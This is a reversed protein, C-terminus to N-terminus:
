PKETGKLAEPIRQQSGDLSLRFDDATNEHGDRGPAVLTGGGTSDTIFFDNGWADRTEDETLKGASRLKAITPIGDAMAGDSRLHLLKNVVAEMRGRTLDIRERDLQALEDATPPSAVKMRAKSFMAAINQGLSSSEGSELYVPKMVFLAGFALVALGALSLLIVRAHSTPAEEERPLEVNVLGETLYSGRRPTPYDGENGGDPLEVTQM